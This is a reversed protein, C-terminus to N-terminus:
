PRPECPSRRNEPGGALIHAERKKAAWRAMSAAPQQPVADLGRTLRRPPRLARVIVCRPRCVEHADHRFRSVRAEIPTSRAAELSWGRAIVAIASTTVAGSFAVRHMSGSALLLLLPPPRLLPLLARPPHVAAAQLLWVLVARARPLWGLVFKLPLLAAPGPSAGGGSAGGGQPLGWLAAQEMWTPGTMM